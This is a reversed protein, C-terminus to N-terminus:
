NAAVLLQSVGSVCPLVSILQFTFCLTGAATLRFQCGVRPLAGILKPAYEPVQNLQIILNASLEWYQALLGSTKGPPMRKSGGGMLSLFWHM